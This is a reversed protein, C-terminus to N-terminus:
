LLLKPIHGDEQRGDLIILFRKACTTSNVEIAVIAEVENKWLSTQSMNALDDCGTGNADNNLSFDKVVHSLQTADHDSLQQVVSEPSLVQAAISMALAMSLGVLCILRMRWHLM